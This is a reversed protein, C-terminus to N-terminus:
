NHNKHMKLFFAKDYSTFKGIPCDLYYRGVCDKVNTVYWEPSRWDDKTSQCIKLKKPASMRNVFSESHFVRKTKKFENKLLFVFKATIM